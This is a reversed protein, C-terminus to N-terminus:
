LDANLAKLDADDIDFNASVNAVDDLDDLANILKLLSGAEDGAVKVSTQAVRTLESSAVPLGKQQLAQMVPQLTETTTTVVIEGEGELVDEAGAEIAAEMATEADCRGADIVVQGVRQFLYSVSGAGGLKGGYKTFCHRVEAATRNKNDTQTEVLIAVGGPGYGEYEIEEYVVGDLEGTGRKIAREITDKPMNTAQAALVAARLRSNGGPDGGGRAAITVERIQRSWIKSRQADKAGKKRKITSWKSHGSM